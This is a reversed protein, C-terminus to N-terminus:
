LEGTPQTPSGGAVVAATLQSTVNALTKFMDPLVDVAILIGVGEAPLGVDVLVPSLLFLSASPIGPVSFSLLTSTLVLTLLTGETIPIGYLKGLFVVGVVWAMPVNVRFISVALPLVFGSATESLGLKTRAAAIMLPLAALSSRSGAALAQAPAAASLFRRFGMRGVLVVVPYLLITFLLLTGSLTIIYRALAGISSVGLRAGLAFTLALVGVPAAAVVWGVVILMADAVGRCADVVPARREAPVQKLAFGLALSFVVLPLLAGDAASKIPNSPVMDILRQALSPMSPASAVSAASGRVREAVEAPMAFGAFAFESTGIALLGGAVLLVVFVVLARGGARRLEASGGTSAVSAITLAAVLPLVTMRIANTWLTGIVDAAPLARVLTASETWAVFMGAGLGVALALLVRLSQSQM